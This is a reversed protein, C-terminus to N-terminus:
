MKEDINMFEKYMSADQTNAFVHSSPTGPPLTGTDVLQLHGGGAELVLMSAAPSQVQTAPNKIELSMNTKEESNNPIEILAKLIQQRAIVEWCQTWQQDYVSKFICIQDEQQVELSEIYKIKFEMAKIRRYSQQILIYFRSLKVQM